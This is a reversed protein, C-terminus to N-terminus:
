GNRLYKLWISIHVDNGLSMLPKDFKETMDLMAFGNRLYKLRNGCMSAM